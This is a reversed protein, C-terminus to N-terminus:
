TRSRDWGSWRGSTYRENYWRNGDGGICTIAFNWGNTWEVDISRQGPKYCKGGMNKWSMNGKWKTYPRNDTGIVFAQWTGNPLKLKVNSKCLFRGGWNSYTCTGNSGVEVLEDGPVDEEAFASTQAGVVTGGALMLTGAALAVTKRIKM